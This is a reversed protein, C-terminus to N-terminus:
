KKNLRSNLGLVWEETPGLKLLEKIAESYTDTDLDLGKAIYESIFENLKKAAQIKADASADGYIDLTMARSSHGMMDALSAIDMNAQIGMTAVNHRLCHLTIYNGYHDKLNYAHVFQRFASSYTDPILFDKKEGVVFWDDKVDGYKQKTNTRHIDIAFVCEDALPFTRYSSNTKPTKTYWGDFSQGIASTVSITKHELDIDRWRLGCVEGRRLGTYYSIRVACAFWSRKTLEEEADIASLLDSTQTVDLYSVRHSENKIPKVHDFPNDAIEGAFKNYNYTKRVLNFSERVTGPKLGRGYLQGVWNNIADRNLEKFSYDGIYDRVNTELRQTQKMYTSKALEGISLQYDLYARVVEYVTRTDKTVVGKSAQRRIGMEWEKLEVEADRKLKAKATKSIERRKGEADYYRMKGQWKGSKLKRIELKKYDTMAVKKGGQPLKCWNKGL